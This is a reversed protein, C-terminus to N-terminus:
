SGGTSSPRAQWLNGNSYFYVMLFYGNDVDYFDYLCRYYDFGQENVQPKDCRDIFDGFYVDWEGHTQLHGNNIMEVLAHHLDKENKISYQDCIDEGAIDHMKPCIEDLLQAPLPPFVTHFKSYINRPRIFGVWACWSCFLTLAILGIIRILRTKDM